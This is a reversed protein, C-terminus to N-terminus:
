ELLAVMLRQYDGSVEGRVRQVLDGGFRVRYAGKVQMLHARDWHLRVVRVVLREDKTGAGRMCDELAEADRMAPDLATHLMWLLAEKVHGSFERELRKELSEQYRVRFAHNIARLETGSSRAFISCVELVDNVLRGSTADHIVRAEAEAEVPSPCYWEEHRNAALVASFLARTKMSLDGEVDRELSRDGFRQRYASKIAQLDANSRGLLVDNLVWEKTGVGQVADRLLVVDHVLPGDIIGLLGQRFYGSTESRVDKHLDRGIHAAYTSRISAIQLPDPKTLIQILAREDTGLGKM